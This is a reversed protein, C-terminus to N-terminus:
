CLGVEDGLSLRGLKRPIAHVGFEIGGSSLKRYTSLTKLPEMNLDKKATEPDITTFVCRQCPQVIEFECSGIKIMKWSDEAHPACGSIVINPRFHTMTVSRELKSNLSELSAESIILVPNQDAFGVTDGESGGHKKRIVRQESEDVVALKASTGLYESFWNSIDDSYVLGDASSSFIQIKRSLKTNAEFPISLVKQGKQFVELTDTKVETSLHLLKPFDRATIVKGFDDFLAWHRDFKLGRKTVEIHDHQIGTLSKLPYTSLGTLKM